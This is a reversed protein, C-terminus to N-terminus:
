VPEETFCVLPNTKNVKLVSFSAFCEGVFPVRKCLFNMKQLINFGLGLDWNKYSTKHNADCRGDTMRLYKLCVYISIACRGSYESSWIILTMESPDNPLAPRMELNYSGVVVSWELLYIWSSHKDWLKLWRGFSQQLRWNWKKDRWCCNHMFM